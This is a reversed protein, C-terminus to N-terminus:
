TRGEPRSGPKEVPKGERCLPCQTPDYNELDVTLLAFHPAPFSPADKGRQVLCALGAVRAKWSRVLETLENFSGGTTLVDDVLLVNEGDRLTFGRRLVMGPVDRESFVHRVGLARAVEHGLILGGVAPSAVVDIKRGQKLLADRCKEALARGLQEARDPHQLAKACQMYNRSHRGSSLKFHGTLLAQSDELIRTVDKENM